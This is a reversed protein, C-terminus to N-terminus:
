GSCPSRLPVCSIGPSPPVALLLTTNGRRTSYPLVSTRNPLRVGLELLPTLAFPMVSCSHRAADTNGVAPLTAFPATIVPGAQLPHDLLYRGMRTEPNVGWDALVHLVHLLSKLLLSLSREWRGLCPLVSM